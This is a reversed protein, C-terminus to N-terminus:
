THIGDFLRMCSGFSIYSQPPGWGGVIKVLVIVEKMAVENLRM